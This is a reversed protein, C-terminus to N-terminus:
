TAVPWRLHVSQRFLHRGFTGSLVFWYVYREDDRRVKVYIYVVFNVYIKGTCATERHREARGFEIM